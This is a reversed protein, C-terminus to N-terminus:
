DYQNDVKKPHKPKRVSKTKNKISKPRFPGSPDRVQEALWNRPKPAQPRRTNRAM